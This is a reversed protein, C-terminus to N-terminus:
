CLRASDKDQTIWEDRIEKEENGSMTAANGLMVMPDNNNRVSFQSPFGEGDDYRLPSVNEEMLDAREKRAPYTVFHLTPILADSQVRRGRSGPRRGRRILPIRCLFWALRGNKWYRHHKKGDNGLLSEQESRSIPTVQSEQDLDKGGTDGDDDNDEDHYKQADDWSTKSECFEIMSAEDMIDPATVSRDCGKDVVKYLFSIHSEIIDKEEYNYHSHM